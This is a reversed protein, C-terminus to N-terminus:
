LCNCFGYSVDAMVSSLLHMGAVAVHMPPLSPLSRLCTYMLSVESYFDGTQSLIAMRRWGFHQVFTAVAAAYHVAQPHLKLLYEYQLSDSSASHVAVPNCVIQSTSPICKLNVLSFHM